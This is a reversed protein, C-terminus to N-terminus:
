PSDDPLKMSCRQPRHTPKEGSNAPFFRQQLLVVTVIGLASGAVIDSLYHQCLVVRSAAIIFAVIIFVPQFRPLLLSLSLAASLATASHGSPFSQWAHDFIHQFPEFGYIGNHLLLKPRARGFIFKLLDASLGSVAVTTFLFLGKMSLQRNRKRYWAFLALGGILYWESQGAKTVAKWTTHWTGTDLQHFFLMLPQDLLFFSVACFLLVAALLLHQKQNREDIM